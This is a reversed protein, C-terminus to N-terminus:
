LLVIAQLFKEAPKKILPIKKHGAASYSDPKRQTASQLV